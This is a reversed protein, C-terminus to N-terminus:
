VRLVAEKRKRKSKGVPNVVFEKVGNEEDGIFFTVKKLGGVCGWM